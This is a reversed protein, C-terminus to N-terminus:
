TTKYIYWGNGIEKIMIIADPKMQPLNKKDKVFLYGVANDLIGGILFNICNGIEYGGTSISSIFLKQYDPKLNEVLKISWEKKVKETELQKLAGNKIREFEARNKLFHKTINEDLELTLRANGLQFDYDEKSTFMVNAEETTKKSQKIIEDIQQPQIKELELVIEEIINTMALARFANMKWRSDNEFYLYTDVGKGTPDFITMNVVASKETQGLLTFKTTTGEPLDRGNPRGQYEGTIYNDLNSLSDKGFIKKALDVPELAQAFVTTVSLFLVTFVIPTRITM